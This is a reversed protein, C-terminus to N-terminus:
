LDLPSRVGLVGEAVTVVTTDEHVDLGVFKNLTNMHMDGNKTTPKVGVGTRSPAWRPHLGTQPFLGGKNKRGRTLRCSYHRPLSLSRM